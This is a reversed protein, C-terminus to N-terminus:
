NEVEGFLIKGACDACLEEDDDITYEEYVRHAAVARMEEDDFWGNCIMCNYQFM